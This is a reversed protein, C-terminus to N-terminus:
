STSGACNCLDLALAVAGQGAASLPNIPSIIEPVLRSLKQKINSMVYPSGVLSDGVLVLAKVGGQVGDVKDYQDYIGDLIEDIVPDFLMQIELYSITIEDYSEREPYGMKRDYSEWDSALRGPLDIDMDERIKRGSGFYNKWNNWTEMFFSSSREFPFKMLFEQM